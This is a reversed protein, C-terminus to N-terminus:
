DVLIEKIKLLDWEVTVCGCGPVWISYEFGYRAQSKRIETGNLATYDKGSNLVRVAKKWETNTM